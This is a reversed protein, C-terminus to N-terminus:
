RPFRMLHREPSPPFHPYHNRLFIMAAGYEDVVEYRPKARRAGFSPRPMSSVQPLNIYLTGIYICKGPFVNFYISLPEIPNAYGGSFRYVWRELAYEGPPLRLCFYGDGRLYHSVRLESHSGRIFIRFSTETSPDIRPSDWSKEISEEVVGIRGIVLSDGGHNGYFYETELNGIERVCSPTCFVGLVLFIGIFKLSRVM